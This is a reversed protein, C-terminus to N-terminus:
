TISDLLTFPQRGPTNQKNTADNGDDSDDGFCNDVAGYSNLAKLNFTSPVSPFSPHVLYSALHYPHTPDRLAIHSLFSSAM